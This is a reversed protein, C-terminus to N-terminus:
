FRKCSTLYDNGEECALLAKYKTSFGKLHWMNDYSKANKLVDAGLVFPKWRNRSSDKWAVHGHLKQRQQQSLLHTQPVVLGKSSNSKDAGEGRQGSQAGSTKM